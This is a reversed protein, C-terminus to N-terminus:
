ATLKELFIILGYFGYKIIRLETVQMRCKRQHFRLEVYINQQYAEIFM